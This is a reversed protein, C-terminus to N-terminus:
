NSHKKANILTVATTWKDAIALLVTHSGPNKRAGDTNRISVGADIMM